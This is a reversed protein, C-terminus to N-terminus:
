KVALTHNLINYILTHIRDRLGQAVGVPDDKYLDHIEKETKTPTLNTLLLDNGNRLSLNPDMFGFFADSTVFGDFGWEGRLVNQLLEPNGGSWKYGIHIFSSMVGTVKTETTAYEFPKLYLERISQENAWLFLGTRANVEQENLIFHKMTVMVNKSQIGEIIATGMKGSLIPDESYYEFNRGGYPTRHINMAPAYICEVGYANAETGMSEGMRYILADNWTSALTLASPYAAATVDAFFYNIGAPGDLLSTAPIGLREVAITKWGGRTFLSIMEDITFQDMFSEWMPDDYDLGKLEKLMIHNDAGTTPESGTGKEPEAKYANLVADPLVLDMDESTPWTGEWDSRSLYDIDGNAYEFQNEYAYGYISENYVITDEVVFDLSTIPSHVDTSVDITYTGKELVYAEEKIMDWSAMQRTPYEIVVTESEGPQLLQTKKFDALVIASKEIGGEYYPPEYYVEVVDKGAMTGTNTVIVEVKIVDQDFEHGTVEWTFDTYSLGFGFPYLVQEQYGVEDNDFRTEYYRYGVYIGEEYELIGMNDLNSYVFDGFNETGPASANDYVLTDPLKGSPNIQGAITQALTMPGTAGPTGISLVAKITPMDKIFGLELTNGTNVVIIVNDFNETVKKILELKNGKVTLQEDDADSAEVSDSTLVILANNSFTQAQTIVEETLYDIAPEEERGKVFFAAIGKLGTQSKTELTYGLDRYIDLLSQNYQIGVTELADFLNIARSVDAAGSGSGSLRMNVAGTGFVNITHDKLPLFDGENKLLIIGEDTIEKALLEGAARAAVADANETDIEVSFLEKLDSVIPIAKIVILLVLVAFMGSLTFRLPRRKYKKFFKDVKKASKKEKGKLNKIESKRASKEEKVVAKDAKKASVREEFSMSKLEARRVKKRELYTIYRAKAVARLEKKKM